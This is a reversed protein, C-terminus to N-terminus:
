KWGEENWAESAYILTPILVGNHVEKSMCWAVNIVYHHVKKLMYKVPNTSKRVILSTLFSQVCNNKSTISSSIKFTRKLSIIKGNFICCWEDLFSRSFPGCYNYKNNSISLIRLKSAYAWSIMTIYKPDHKVNWVLCKEGFVCSEM